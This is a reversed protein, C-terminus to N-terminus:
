DAEGLMSEIASCPSSQALQQEQWPESLHRSSRILTWLSLLLPLFRPWRSNELCDIQPGVRNVAGLRVPVRVDNGLM